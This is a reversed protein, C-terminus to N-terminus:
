KKFYGYGVNTKAGVGFDALADKLVEWIFKDKKQDKYRIKLEDKKCEKYGVVFHFKANEVTLFPILKLKDDDTPPKIHKNGSDYYGSYHVAMIDKKIKLKYGLPFADFFVVNGKQSKDDLSRGFINIFEERGLAKREDNDYCRYIIYSRLIGKIAQGPIYPIGYTHHFTMTTERTDADGLGIVMRGNQQLSFDKIKYGHECYLKIISSNKKMLDKVNSYDLEIDDKIYENKSIGDDKDYVYKKLVKFDGNKRRVKYYYKDLFLKLNYGMHYKYGIKKSEVENWADSLSKSM